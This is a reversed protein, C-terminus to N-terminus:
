SQFQVSQPSSLRRWAGHLLAAAAAGDNRGVDLLPVSPPREGMVIALRECGIEAVSGLQPADKERASPVGGGAGRGRAGESRRCGVFGGLFIGAIASTPTVSSEKGGENDNEM